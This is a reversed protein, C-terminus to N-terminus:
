NKLGNFSKSCEFFHYIKYRQCAVAQQFMAISFYKAFLLILTSFIYLYFNESLKKHLLPVSQLNQDCFIQNCFSWDKRIM